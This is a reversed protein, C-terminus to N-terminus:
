RGRCTRASALRRMMTVDRGYVSRQLPIIVVVFGISMKYLM